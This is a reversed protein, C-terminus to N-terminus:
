AVTQPIDRTNARWHNSFGTMMAHPVILQKGREEEGWWDEAEFWEVVNNIGTIVVVEQSM